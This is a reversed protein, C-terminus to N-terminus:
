RERCSARGIQRDCSVALGCEPAALMCTLALMSTTSQPSPYPQSGSLTGVTYARADVSGVEQAAIPGPTRGADNQYRSATPSSTSICAVKKWVGSQVPDGM